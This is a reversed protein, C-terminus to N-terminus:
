QKVQIASWVDFNGATHSHGHNGLSGHLHGQIASGINQAELDGQMATMGTDM